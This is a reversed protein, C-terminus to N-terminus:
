FAEPLGAQKLVGNATHRSKIGASVPFSRKTIPSWWIEDSGKGSRDFMCSAAALRRKLERELDDVM